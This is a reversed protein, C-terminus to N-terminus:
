RPNARTIGLPVLFGAINKMFHNPDFWIEGVTMKHKSVQIQVLDPILIFGEGM